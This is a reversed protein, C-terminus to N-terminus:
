SGASRGALRPNGNQDGGVDLENRVRDAESKPQREAMDSDGPCHKCAPSPPRGVKALYQQFCGHNTLAQTMHYTLPVRVVTGEIWRNVSPIAQRTWAGKESTEWRTQWLTLTARREERKITSKSPRAVGPDVAASLRDRIRTRKLAILDVPPWRALLLSAEDSVTRYARIVRLTAARQPQILNVTTRATKSVQSAWVPAAYMLQSEVVSALLRRKWQCPGRVNPMIRALSVNTRSAKEAVTDVHPAFTLGQDLIVSLYRLKKTLAIHHGGVV